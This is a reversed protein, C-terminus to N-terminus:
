LTSARMRSISEALARGASKKRAVYRRCAIELIALTTHAIMADGDAFSTCRQPM